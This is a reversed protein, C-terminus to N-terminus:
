MDNEEGVNDIGGLAETVEEEECFGMEVETNVIAGREWDQLWVRFREIEGEEL